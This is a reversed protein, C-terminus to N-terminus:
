MVDYLALRTNRWKMSEQIIENLATKQTIDVIEYLEVRLMSQQHGNALCTDFKLIM